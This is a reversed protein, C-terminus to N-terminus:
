PLTSGNKLERFTNYVTERLNRYATKPEMAEEVSMFPPLTPFYADIGYEKCVAVDKGLTGAYAIVPKRYHKALKALYGPGKGMVSQGDLCGEGTIVLDYQPLLEDIRLLKIVLEAGPSLTGNLFASFAFGLGGAAGAGARSPDATPFSQRVKEAYAEMWRDMDAVSLPTAGKQPAFVASCGNPGFLPNNVDCAIQFTCEGLESLAPSVDITQLDRLGKAGLSCSRGEKDLFMFGLAQLMGMGGDNTASGGIGILFKRCGRDLAHRIMEGVGFSTTHLPDRKEKPVLPLGAARAMEMVATGDPLIGYSTDVPQGIPGTVRLHIEQGKLGYILTEATGEGGDAFPLVLVEAEPDFARIGEAVARGAEMSALSGKFSDMAILVKM